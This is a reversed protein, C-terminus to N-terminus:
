EVKPMQEMGDEADGGDRASLSSKRVQQWSLGIKQGSAVIRNPNDPARRERRKVTQMELPEPIIWLEGAM